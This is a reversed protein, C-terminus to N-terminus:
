TGSSEGASSRGGPQDSGGAGGIREAYFLGFGSSGAINFRSGCEACEINIGAGGRPGPYFREGDCDPCRGRRLSTLVDHRWPVQPLLRDIITQLTASVMRKAKQAM